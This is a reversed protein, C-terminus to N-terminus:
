VSDAAYFELCVSMVSVATMWPRISVEVSEFLSTSSYKAIM